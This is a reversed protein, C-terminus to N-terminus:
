ARSIEESTTDGALYITQTPFAFEIGAGNFRRVIELNLKQSFDMYAWYDPPHYWYLVLIGLSSDNFSEFCVRPPLDPDMGEHNALLEKLISLAEEIKEPSTDYTIGIKLVRRINRRAAINKINKNALEGNPMTVVHGDLTRIRTSRLGVEEVSGDHDDVVVRDGLEFPKDAFIVISGFLNKVTDQGALAFALGGFGLAALISSVPQDSLIQAIQVVALVVVTTRLGTRIVPVLMDDMKSATKRARRGLLVVIVESLLYAMWAVALTLLIAIGAGLFKQVRENITLFHVGVQIGVVGLFPSISGALATTVARAIGRREDIKKTAARLTGKIIAGVIMAVLISAAFALLQWLENEGLVTRSLAESWNKM